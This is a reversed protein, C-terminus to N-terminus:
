IGQRHAFYRELAYILIFLGLLVLDSNAKKRHKQEPRLLFRSKLQLESSMVDQMQVGVFELFESLLVEPLRGSRVIESHEFDLREPFNVFNERDEFSYDDSNFYLKDADDNSKKRQSFIIKASDPTSVKTFSIGYVEEVAQFSAEIFNIESEDMEEPFYNFIKLDLYLNVNQNEIYKLSDFLGIENISFRKKNFLQIVQKRQNEFEKNGLYLQPITPTLYFQSGMENNSNSLYIYLSDTDNPVLALADELQFDTAEANSLDDVSALQIKKKTAWFVNEGDELARTLEFKFEEVIDNDPQVLHTIQPAKNKELSALFVKSLLTVIIVLMLIRLILVLINELKLGKVVASEKDSLWQMAAWEMVKGSNGRWLHILIPISIGLLGWLMFPQLFQM